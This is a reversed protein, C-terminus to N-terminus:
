SQDLNIQSVKGMEFKWQSLFLSWMAAENLLPFFFRNKRNGQFLNEIKREM